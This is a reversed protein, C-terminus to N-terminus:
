STFFFLVFLQAFESEFCPFNKWREEETARRKGGAAQHHHEEEAREGGCDEDERGAAWAHEKRKHRWLANQQLGDGQAQRQRFAERQRATSTFNHM